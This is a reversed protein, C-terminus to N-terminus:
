YYKLLNGSNIVNHKHQKSEPTCPCRHASWPAQPAPSGQACWSRWRLARPRSPDWWRQAGRVDTEVGSTSTQRSTNHERWTSTHRTTIHQRRRKVDANVHSVQYIHHPQQINSTHCATVYYMISRQCTQRKVEQRGHHCGHYLKHRSTVHQRSM